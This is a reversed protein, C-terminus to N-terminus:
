VEGRGHGNKKRFICVVNLSLFIYPHLQFTTLSEIEIAGNFFYFIVLCVYTVVGQWFHQFM